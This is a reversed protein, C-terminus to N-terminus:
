DQIKKMERGIQGTLICFYMRWEAIFSKVPYKFTAPRNKEVFFHGVWSCAYGFFPIAILFYWNQLYLEVAFLVIAGSSGVFHLARTLPRKHESLYFPWFEKMTKYEKMIIEM